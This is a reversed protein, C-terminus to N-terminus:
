WSSLGKRMLTVQVAQRVFALLAVTGRKVDHQVSLRVAQIADKQGAM